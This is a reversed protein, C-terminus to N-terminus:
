KDLLRYEVVRVIKFGEEETVEGQVEVKQGVYDMVSNGLDTDAIEYSEGQDTVIRYDDMVTGMVAMRDAAAPSALILACGAMIAVWALVWRRNKNM